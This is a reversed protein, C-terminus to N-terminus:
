KDYELLNWTEQYNGVNFCLGLGNDVIAKHLPYDNGAERMDDGYFRLETEGEFDTLIQAKDMGREYIDLGTQGGVRAELDPFRANFKGAIVERENTARDWQIYREREDLEANRGVISFNVMGPRHEFHLGTRLEFGSETLQETLWEHAEVPLKWTTTRIHDQGEWVDNGACNYVRTVVRLVDEGLQEATKDHDSGTVLYVHKGKAWDIFWEKFKDDMLQRSPTLTGDVDFIYKKM